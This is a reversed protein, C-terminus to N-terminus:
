YCYCRDLNGIIKTLEEINESRSMIQENKLGTHKKLKFIAEYDAPLGNTFTNCDYGRNILKSYLRTWYNILEKETVNREYDEFLKFRTIWLGIRM